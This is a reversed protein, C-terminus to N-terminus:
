LSGQFSYVGPTRGRLYSSRCSSCSIGRNVTDCKSIYHDQDDNIFALGQLLDCFYGAFFMAAIRDAVYKDVEANDRSLWDFNTRNPKFAKNYAGFTLKDLLPSRTKKGKKAAERKAVFRGVKGLLGPDGNTGSLILGKIDNGYLM